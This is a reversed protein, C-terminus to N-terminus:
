DIAREEVSSLSWRSRLEGMRSGDVYINLALHHPLTQSCLLSMFLRREDCGILTKEANLTSQNHDRQM